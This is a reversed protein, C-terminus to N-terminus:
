MGMGCARTSEVIYDNYALNYKPDLTRGAMSALIVDMFEADVLKTAAEAKCTCLPENQSTKVCQDYFRARQEPTPPAAVAVGTLMGVALFAIGWQQM